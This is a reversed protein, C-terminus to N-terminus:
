RVLNIGYVLRGMITGESDRVGSFRPGSLRTSGAVVTGTKALIQSATGWIVPAGLPGSPSVLHLHKDVLRQINKIKTTADNVRISRDTNRLPDAWIDVFVRPFEMSNHANPSTYQDDESVVILCSSTNEIRVGVPSEDFIWTAWTQSKGLLTTLTLDQALTNRIDLTLKTVTSGWDM